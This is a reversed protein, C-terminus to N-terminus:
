VAVATPTAPLATAVAVTVTTGAPVTLSMLWTIRM